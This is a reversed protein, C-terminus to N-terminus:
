STDNIRSRPPRSFEHRQAENMEWPLFPTIDEPPLGSNEACATLYATLWYRPNINWLVLTKFISFLTAALLASWLSGSGYYNKRGTVPGRISNEAINNDLPVQPNEVFLTLGEWHNLLSQCVKRQQTRASRSLRRTDEDQLNDDKSALRTAEPHMENLMDQVSQHHQTFIDSQQKITKEPEWHELRLSNLHYLVGIREKWAMAWHELEKYKRGADLFDRRVHAWCFALLIVDSLRALKKYSSYRDVVLIVQKQQLGAFHEGPVVASRSPDLIFYVVSDSRTVWLYWRTGVKGEIEVFVEWRTEDNHFLAETMQKQYLGDMIPEFLPLLKQLGGTVTGPSVPLAQDSLDELYRHTPQSYHFKSLLVEVWFSVQYPSRPILRQPPPATIVTPMKECHCGPHRVYAPRRVRRTYAQVEVEIFDNCEDLAPMPIHPLGCCSCNKDESKLDLTQLIVPLDPRPTRGHGKSGPQQGRKKTSSTTSTKESKALGKKESKKGFLRNQLDKIKANLYQVEDEPVMNKQKVQAHQAKWYNAQHTLNIYEEKTVSVWDQSF